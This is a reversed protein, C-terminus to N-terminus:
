RPPVPIITAPHRLRGALDHTVPLADRQPVVLLLRAGDLELFARGDAAFPVLDLDVGVACVVVVPEGGATAGLAVCPVPDKLNPRPVPPEAVRLSAVGILAPEDILRWRLLREAGLRNLPHPSAAPQRHPSVARVVGALAQVTPVNGHIMQFAQRDHVGVGVELRVEDTYRDTVVRCVELGAVEGSLVGHEVAPEAGGEIILARLAEHEVPVAPSPTFPEALAPLLVRGEVHWITPPDAFYQAQRQLVGTSQEALVNVQSAQQQRAWAMAPGLGRAPNDDILV